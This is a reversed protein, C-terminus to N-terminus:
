HLITCIAPAFEQWPMIDFEQWPLHLGHNSNAGVMRTLSTRIAPAFEQWPM